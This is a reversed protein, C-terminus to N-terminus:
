MFPYSADIKSPSVKSYAEIAKLFNGQKALIDGEAAYSQFSSVIESGDNIDDYDDDKAM